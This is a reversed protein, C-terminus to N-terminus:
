IKYLIKTEDEIQLEQKLFLYVQESKSDVMIEYYQKVIDEVKINVMGYPKERYQQIIKPVHSYDNSNYYKNKIENLPNKMFKIDQFDYDKIIKELSKKRGDIGKLFHPSKKNVYEIM